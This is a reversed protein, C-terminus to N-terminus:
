WSVSGGAAIRVPGPHAAGSVSLVTLDLSGFALSVTRTVGDSAVTGLVGPLLLPLKYPAPIVPSFVLTKNPIDADQGSIALPLHWQVMHFGYHSTIYPLGDPNSLGATCWQDALNVRWNDVMKQAQAMADEYADAGRLRLNLTAWNPSAGQWINQDTSGIQAGSVAHLGYPSDNNKGETALHQVLRDESALVTGLGASSALVQAYMCDAMLSANVGQVAAYHPGAPDNPVWLLDDLADQGRALAADCAEAFTSNGVARALYGAAKMAMLHFVGNYTATPYQDLGLIDYTSVLRYPIGYQQSVQMQWLAGKYVAPWFAELSAVDNSWKYLELVYMIFMSTVDSMVRGSPTDFQPVPGLYGQGLEENIMGDPQALRAWALMKNRTTEPFFSKYPIHRPPPPPFPPPQNNHFHPKLIHLFTLHTNMGKGM